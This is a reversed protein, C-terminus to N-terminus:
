QDLNNSLARPAQMVHNENLGQYWRPRDRPRDRPGKNPEAVLEFTLFPCCQREAVILDVVVAIWKKDGPARFAYGNPLEETAIVASKFQALLTAERRRFEVDTLTRAIPIDGSKLRM